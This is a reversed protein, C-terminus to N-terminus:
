MGDATLEAKQLNAVLNGMAVACEQIWSTPLGEDDASGELAILIPIAHDAMSDIHIRARPADLERRLSQLAHKHIDAMVTYANHVNPSWAQNEPAAPLPPLDAMFFKLPPRPHGLYTANGHSLTLEVFIINM